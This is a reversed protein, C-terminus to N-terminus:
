VIQFLKFCDSVMEGRGKDRTGSIGSGQDRSGERGKNLRVWSGCMWYGADLMWYGADLIWYRRRM